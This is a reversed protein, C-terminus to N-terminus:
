RSLGPLPQQDSATVNTGTKPNKLLHGEDLIVYCWPERELFEIDSRLVAYSTIVINVVDSKLNWLEQREDRSGALCLVHFLSSAPFYKEIEGKWLGLLSSPCIVLSIPRTGLKTLDNHALVVAVLAQISKGLGMDAAHRFSRSNQINSRHEHRTESSTGDCLAGSLNTSWLFNLWAIGEEQYSRLRIRKAALASTVDEPFELPPLPKAFILHDIVSESHADSIVTKFASQEKVLPAVRVLASFISNALQGVRSVRDTVLSLVLPLLCRVYDRIATKSVQVIKELLQCALVRHQDRSAKQLVQTATPIAVKLFYSAHLSCLSELCSLASERMFSGRHESCALAILSPVNQDILSCGQSLDGALGGVLIRLLVCSSTMTTDDTQSTETSIHTLRRQLPVIDVLLPGNQALSQLVSAAMEARPFLSQPKYPSQAAAECLADVVKHYGREFKAEHRMLQLLQGLYSCL